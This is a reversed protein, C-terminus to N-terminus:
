QIRKEIEVDGANHIRRKRKYGGMWEGEGNKNSSCVMKIAHALQGLRMELDCDNNPLLFTEFM